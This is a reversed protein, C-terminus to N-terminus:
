GFRVIPFANLQLSTINCHEPGTSHSGNFGDKAATLLIISEASKEEDQFLDISSIQPNNNKQKTTKKLSSKRSICSVKKLQSDRITTYQNVTHQITFLTQSSLWLLGSGGKGGWGM